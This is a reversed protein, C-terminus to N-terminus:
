PPTHWGHRALFIQRLIGKDRRATNQNKLNNDWRNHSDDPAFIQRNMAVYTTYQIIEGPALIKIATM